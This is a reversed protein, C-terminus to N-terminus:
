INKLVDELEDVYRIKDKIVKAREDASKPPRELTWTDWCWLILNLEGNYYWNTNGCEFGKEEVIGSNLIVREQTKM